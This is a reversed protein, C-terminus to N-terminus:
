TLSWVWIVAISFYRRFDKGVSMSWLRTVLSPQTSINKSFYRLFFQWSVSIHGHLISPFTCQSYPINIFTSFLKCDRESYIKETNAHSPSLYVIFVTVRSRFKPLHWPQCPMIDRVVQINMAVVTFVEFGKRKKFRANHYVQTILVLLIWVKKILSKIWNYQRRCTAFMWTNM